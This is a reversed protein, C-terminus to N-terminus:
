SSVVTLLPANTTATPIRSAAAQMAPTIGARRADDTSGTRANLVSYHSQNDEHNGVAELNRKQMFLESRGPLCISSARLGSKKCSTFPHMMSLESSSHEGQLCCNLWFDSDAFGVERELPALVGLPMGLDKGM